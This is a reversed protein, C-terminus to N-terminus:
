VERDAQSSRRSYRARRGATVFSRHPTSYQPTCSAIRHSSVLFTLQMARVLIPLCTWLCRAIREAISERDSPLSTMDPEPRVM